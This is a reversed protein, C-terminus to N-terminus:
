FAKKLRQYEEDTIPLIGGHRKLNVGMDFEDEQLIRFKGSLINESILPLYGKGESYRDVLLCWKAGDELPFAIPGEVGYLNELVPSSIDAFADKDLTKGYDMRINKTTEDKSFRIYGEPIRIIDTDIVHKDREIYLEPETFKKFDNTYSAFIRQKHEPNGLRTMSAWFVLFAEKEEDYIAEPAWACGSEPIAVTHNWPNSWHVLDESKWIIIDRSGEFQAVGWGKGNAIRLDTAILYFCNNKEDRILFPDRVGKEGIESVLVPNGQNLDNWHMGDESLSFYIQEGHESEGIFHVFLYKDKKM